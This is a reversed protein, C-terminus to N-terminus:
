KKVCQMLFRHGLLKTQLLLSDKTHSNIKFTIKEKSCRIENNILAFPSQFLSDAESIPLTTEIAKEDFQFYYENLIETDNSDRKASVISWKGVLDKASLPAAVPENQCANISLMTCFVGLLLFIKQM